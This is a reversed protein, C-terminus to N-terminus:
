NSAVIGGQKAFDSALFAQLTPEGNAESILWAAHAASGAALASGFPGANVRISIERPAKGDETAIAHMLVIDDEGGVPGNALLSALMDRRQRLRLDDLLFQMYDLHGPYRITRCVLSRINGGSLKAMPAIVGSTCFAEYDQGAIHIPQLRSLPEISVLDFNEIAECAQTYEAFLGDFNWILSYGLRNTRKAPIAGVSLSIDVPGSADASLTKVMLDALGPSMGCGHLAGPESSASPMSFDLYTCGADRAAAEVRKVIRDPVAAVAIDIGALFAALQAPIAADLHQAEIGHSAAKMCAEDTCDGLRVIHQGGAELMRALALGVQGAGVIAVIKKTNMM